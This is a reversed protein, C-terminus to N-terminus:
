RLAGLVLTGIYGVYIALIIGGEVRNIRHQSFAMPLLVLSIGTMVLLDKMGGAPIESPLITVSIGWVFLMNFINSGVINGIAIDGQGSRAASLSTSLEPLSTGVAIITLAIVTEAIGLARAIETAGRVTLEGGLVLTALGGLILLAIRGSRNSTGSVAGEAAEGVTNSQLAEGITYYLFVGFLLLLMMGDGRSYGAQAESLFGGGGLVLAALAALIMMPIERIVIVRHISIPSLLATLGLLLGINAINSGVVNGFGIGSSGRLAASLNVVLEPASTGFAVVTLGVLVPRVGLREALAVSGGVLWDGGKMLAALGLVLLILDLIM